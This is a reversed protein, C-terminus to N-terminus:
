ILMIKDNMSDLFVYLFHPERNVVLVLVRRRIYIEFLAMLNYM